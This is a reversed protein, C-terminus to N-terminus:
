IEARRPPTVSMFKQSSVRREGARGREKFARFLPPPLLYKPTPEWPPLRKAGKGQAVM